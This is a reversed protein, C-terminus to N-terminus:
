EAPLVQRASADYKRDGGFLRARTRAGKTVIYFAFGSAAIAFVISLGPLIYPNKELKPIARLIMMAPASLAAHQEEGSKTDQLRLQARNWDIDARM